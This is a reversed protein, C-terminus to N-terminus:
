KQFEMRQESKVRINKPVRVYGTLPTFPLAAECRLTKHEGFAVNGAQQWTQIQYDCISGLSACKWGLEKFRTDLQKKALAEATVPDDPHVRSGMECGILTSNMVQARMFFYWGWDMGGMFLVLFVPLTLAFEIANAGRKKRNGIM